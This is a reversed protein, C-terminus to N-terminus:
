HGFATWAHCSCILLVIDLQQHSIAELAEQGDAAAIVEYPEGELSACWTSSRRTM